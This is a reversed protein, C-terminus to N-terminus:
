KIAEFSPVYKIQEEGTIEKEYSEFAKPNNKQLAERAAQAALRDNELSENKKDKEEARKEPEPLWGDGSYIVFGDLFHVEKDFRIGGDYFRYLWRDKGHLRTSTNPPGMRALVSDKDMGLQISSFDKLASTQCAALWLTSFILLLLRRM